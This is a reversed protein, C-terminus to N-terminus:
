QKGGLSSIILEQDLELAKDVCVLLDEEPMYELEFARKGDARSVYGNGPIRHHPPCLPLVKKHADPKTKGDTHHIEAPTNQRRYIRCIICGLAQVRQMHRQEDVTPKRGILM